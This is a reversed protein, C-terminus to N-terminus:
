SVSQCWTVSHFVGLRPEPLRNQCPQRSTPSPPKAEPGYGCLQLWRWQCASSCPSYALTLEDSESRIYSFLFQCHLIVHRRASVMRVLRPVAATNVDRHHCNYVVVSVVVTLVTLVLSYGVYSAPLCLVTFVNDAKFARLWVSDHCLYFNTQLQEFCVRTFIYISKNIESNYLFAFEKM